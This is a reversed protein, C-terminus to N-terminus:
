ASQAGSGGGRADRAFRHGTHREIFELLRRTTNRFDFTEVAHARAAAGIRLRYEVDRALREFADALGAEDQQRILIGDVGDRIMEPTAGIISSVCALGCSKAEMLSIPGAEGLGVSPLVFADARQLHALVEDEGQTGPMSVRDGLGLDRVIRELEGREPGEGALTYHLDCGRDVAMKMAALAHRHGKCAHLRAVTVLKLKGPVSQRLGADKFVQTDLGMWNPLIKDPPIGVQEVMQTKLHSGDCSICAADAMKSRHDKGYVPLDGHLTLSYTPGGMRKAMAVIHAGDACTHAHIHRVGNRRAWTLVDAACLMLGVARAKEKLSSERLGAIYRGARALGPVNLAMRGISGAAPPYVYHTEAAAAERFPHRCADAPPRRTSLIQVGVGMARLAQIERWFFVHTQSPFEPVLIGIM